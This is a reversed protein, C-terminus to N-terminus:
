TNRGARSEGTPLPFAIETHLDRRPAFRWTLAISLAILGLSVQLPLITEREFLVGALVPALVQAVAIGTESLGFAVGMEAPAVVRGVQANSLTHALNFGSRGLFALGYWLMGTGRWLLLMHLGVLAQAIMFGRRPPRKGLLWNGLILGTSTISGLLGIQQLSLGRVEHLFNPALPLGVYMAFFVFFVLAMFGLYHNNRLLASYRLRSEAEQVPQAGILAILATSIWFCAASFGYIARLELRQAIWGGLIPALVAGVNYVASVATFTREVTQKGRSETLYSYLPAFIFSTLQYVVFGAAFWTLTGALFMLTAGAAGLAWGAILLRKRGLRDALYGAPIHAAAMAAAALGIISGIQIPGAGLQAMYLPQFYFYLGEGLGWFLLSLAVLRSDRTM